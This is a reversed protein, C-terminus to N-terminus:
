APFVGIDRIQCGFVRVLGDQEPSAHVVGASLAGFHDEELEPLLRGGNLSKNRHFGVLDGLLHDFPRFPQRPLGQDEDLAQDLLRFLEDLARRDLVSFDLDLLDTRGALDLKASVDQQLYVECGFDCALEGEHQVISASWVRGELLLRTMGSM